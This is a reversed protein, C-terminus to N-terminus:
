VSNQIHSLTNCLAWALTGTTLSHPSIPWFLCLLPTSPLSHGKLGPSSFAPMLFWILATFLVLSGSASHQSSHPPIIFIIAHNNLYFHKNMYWMFNDVRSCKPFHQRSIISKKYRRAGKSSTRWSFTLVYPNELKFFYQPINEQMIFSLYKKM